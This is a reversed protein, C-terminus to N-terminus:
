EWHGPGGDGDSRAGVALEIGDGDLDGLSATAVGFNDLYDLVGAFGGQTNSIKSPSKVTGDANRFLIWVAGSGDNRAGVALDVAADADLDGLSAVSSGIRM